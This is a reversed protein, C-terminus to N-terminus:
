ASKRFVLEASLLIQQSRPPAPSAAVPPDMKSFLLGLALKGMRDCDQSVTTLSPSTYASLPLNDHGAM